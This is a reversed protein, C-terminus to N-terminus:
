SFQERSRSGVEGLEGRKTRTCRARSLHPLLTCGCKWRAVQHDEAKFGLGTGPVTKRVRPGGKM